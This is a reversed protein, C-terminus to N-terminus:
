RALPESSISVLRERVKRCSRSHGNPQLILDFNLLPRLNPKLVTHLPCPTRSQCTAGLHARGTIMGMEVWCQRRRVSLSDSARSAKLNAGVSAVAITARVPLNHLM